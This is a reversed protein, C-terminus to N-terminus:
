KTCLSDLVEEIPKFRFEKLLGEVKKLAFNIGYYTIFRYELPINLRPTKPYTEWPHIYMIAPMSKNVKRLMLKLIDFPILRLYFGGAIPINLGFIKYVTLPAELIPSKPDEISVNDKSIRYPHLPANPVGYLITRIPFISSDYYFGHKELINLAWKTNNNLSFSPARFGKPKEHILKYLLKVSKDMENEFENKNLKHLPKHSWAHSSIEHGKNYILEIVDPHKEAVIGLVFFTARVNYKDLLKLIPSLSEIIQDEKRNPLYNTLFENCWWYELDVSFANIM